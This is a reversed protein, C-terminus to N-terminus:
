EPVSYLCNINSTRVDLQRADVTCPERTSRRRPVIVERSLRGRVRARRALRPIRGGLRPRTTVGYSISSWFSWFSMVMSWLSWLVLSSLPQNWVIGSAQFEYISSLAASPIGIRALILRRAMCAVCRLVDVQVWLQVRKVPKFGAPRCRCGGRPRGGQSDCHAM